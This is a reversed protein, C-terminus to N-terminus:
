KWLQSKLTAYEIKLMQIEGNRLCVKTLSPGHAVFWIISSPRMMVPVNTDSKLEVWDNQDGEYSNNSNSSAM